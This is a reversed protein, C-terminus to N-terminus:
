QTGVLQRIGQQFSPNLFVHDQGEVPKCHPRLVFRHTNLVVTTLIYSEIVSVGRLLLISDFKNGPM